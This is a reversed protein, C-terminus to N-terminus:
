VMADDGGGGNERVSREGAGDRRRADGGRRDAGGRARRVSKRRSLFFNDCFLRNARVRESFKEIKPKASSVRPRYVALLIHM